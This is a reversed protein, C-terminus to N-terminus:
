EFLKSYRSHAVMEAFAPDDRLERIEGSTLPSNQLAKQAERLNGDLAHARALDIWLAKKQSVPARSLDLARKWDKIALRYEELAVLVRARQVYANSWNPDQDVLDDYARMVDRKAITSGLRALCIWAADRVDGERSDTLPELTRAWAPEWGPDFAPVAALLLMRDDDDTDAHAALELLALVVDDDALEPLVEFYRVIELAFRHARAHDRALALVISHAGEAATDALAYLAGAVLADDTDHLVESIATLEEQGGQRACAHLAALRVGTPEEGRLVELLVPVVREREGSDGLVTLAGARRWENGALAMELLPTTIAAQPLARLTDRVIVARQRRSSGGARGAPGAPSVAPDLYPVLLPAAARGLDLLEAGLRAREEDDETSRELVDLAAIRADVQPRLEAEAVDRRERERRLLDELSDLGEDRDAAIPDGARPGSPTRHPARDPPPAAASPTGLLAAALLSSAIVIAGQVV